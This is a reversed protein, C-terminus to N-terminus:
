EENVLKKDNVLETHQHNPIIQEIEMSCLVAKHSIRAPEQIYM